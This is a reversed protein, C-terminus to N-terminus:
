HYTPQYKGIRKYTDDTQNWILGLIPTTTQEVYLISGLSAISAKSDIQGQVGGTVGNLATLESESL